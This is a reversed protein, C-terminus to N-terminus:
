FMWTRITNCDKAKAKHMWQKKYKTQDKWNCSCLRHYNRDWGKIRDKDKKSNFPIMNKDCMKRSYNM